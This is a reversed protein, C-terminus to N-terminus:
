KETRMGFTISGDNELIAFRVKELSSHGQRRLSELLESQTIKESALLETNVKGHRVLVKPTGEFFREGKKSYWTIYNVAHVLLLLTAASILGGTISKEDGILAGNVAESIILLVILDFPTLEGVHKKGGLRFAVLLFAYVVAARLILEGVGANLEFM